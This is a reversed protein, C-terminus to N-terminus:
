SLAFLYNIKYLIKRPIRFHAMDLQAKQPFFNLATKSKKIAKRKKLSFLYTLQFFYSLCFLFDIVYLIKGPICSYLVYGQWATEKQSFFTIVGFTFGFRMGSGSADWELAAEDVLLRRSFQAAWGERGDGYEDRDM